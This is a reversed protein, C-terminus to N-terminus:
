GAHTEQVNVEMLASIKMQVQLLEARATELEQYVSAERKSCEKKIGEIQVQVEQKKAALKAQVRYLKAQHDNEKLPLLDVKLGAGLEKSYTIGQEQVDEWQRKQWKLLLEKRPSERKRNSIADWNFSTDERTLSAEECSPSPVEQNPSLIEEEGEGKDRIAEKEGM